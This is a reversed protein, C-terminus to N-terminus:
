VHDYGEKRADNVQTGIYNGEPPWPFDSMEQRWNRLQWHAPDWGVKEKIPPWDGGWTMAIGRQIALEKGIHGFFEWQMPSLSWGHVSHILDYACGFPHPAKGGVANSFGDAHLQKQRAHTRVIESAFVPVGLQAMRAIFYRMHLLLRPNAGIRLARWQQEAYKRSALMKRDQLEKWAQRYDDHPTYDGPFTVPPEYVFGGKPPKAYLQNIPRRM